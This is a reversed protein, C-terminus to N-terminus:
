HIILYKKYNLSKIYNNENKIMNKNNDNNETHNHNNIFLKDKLKYERYENLKNNISKNSKTLKVFNPKELIEMFKTNNYNYLTMTKKIENIKNLKFYNIIDLRYYNLSIKDNNINNNNNINNESKLIEDINYVFDCYENSKSNNNSKVENLSSTKKTRSTNISEISIKENEEM